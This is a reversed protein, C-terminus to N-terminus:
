VRVSETRVCVVRVGRERWKVGGGGDGDCRM